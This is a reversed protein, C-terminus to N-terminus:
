SLRSKFDKYGFKRIIDIKGTKSRLVSISPLGVGNFTTTKVFSYIAMDTFVLKDGVSLKQPFSYDGIVDGALCTLGGLRYVHTFGKKDKARLKSAIKAGIIEPTYPMGLVDPMHTEASTDLIAIDMGNNVIDVVSAVLFGANLAVAEGPELYVQVKYKKKFSSILRCLLDIDYGEKTIHHGGGFNVWKVKSLYKGFKKEVSELVRELSDAGQECLAHFHIGSVGDLAKEDFNRITVGLRSCPGCPNYLEAPAESHEPNIRVGIEIGHSLVFKKYKKLQGFSNFIICTSHKVLEKIHEEAYAPAAVVVERGFEEHGLRAENPSSACTGDLYKRILPFTSFASYAKLALLIKAGTRQKVINLIKLNNELLAEEIVFSPTRIKGIDLKSLKSSEM